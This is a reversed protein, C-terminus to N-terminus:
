VAICSLIVTSPSPLTPMPVVAGVWFSSTLPVTFAVCIFTPPSWIADVSRESVALMDSSPEDMSDASIVFSVITFASKASSSQPSILTAVFATLMSEPRSAVFSASPETLLVSNWYRSPTEDAM